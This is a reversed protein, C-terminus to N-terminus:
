YHKEFIKTYKLTFQYADKDLTISNLDDLNFNNALVLRARFVGLVSLLIFNFKKKWSITSWIHRFSFVHVNSHNCITCSKLLLTDNMQTTKCIPSKNSHGRLNFMPKGVMTKISYRLHFMPIGIRVFFYFIVDWVSYTHM